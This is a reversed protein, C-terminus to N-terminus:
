TSQYRYILALIGEQDETLRNAVVLGSLGGGVIVYDYIKEKATALSFVGGNTVVIRGHLTISLIGFLFFIGRYAM